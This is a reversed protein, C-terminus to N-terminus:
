RLHFKIPLKYLVDVPRGRQKGPIWKPMIRVVRMAEKDCGMGIGRVVQINSVNGKKDVLFTVWVTGKVGYERARSPYQLNNQLFNGLASMGGPFMPVTSEPVPLEEEDKEEPIYGIPELEPDGELDLNLDEKAGENMSELEEVIRLIDIVAKQEKPKAAKEKNPIFADVTEPPLERGFEGKLTEVDKLHTRWEFATLVIAGSFCLGMLFFSMRLRELNAGRSKKLKM